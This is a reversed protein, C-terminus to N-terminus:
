HDEYASGEPPDCASEAAALVREDVLRTRQPGERAASAAVVVLCAARLRRDAVSWGSWAWIAVFIAIAAVATTRKNANYLGLWTSMREPM